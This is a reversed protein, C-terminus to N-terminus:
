GKKSGLFGDIAGQAFPASTWLGKLIDPVEGGGEYMIRYMSSQGSAKGIFLQKKVSGELTPSMKDIEPAGSRTSRELKEMM